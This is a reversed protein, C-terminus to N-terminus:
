AAKAYTMKEQSRSNTVRHRRKSAALKYLRNQLKLMDRRLKAPNLSAYQKRLARKIGESVQKSALIRAYPTQPRDHRKRVKSGERTKELLKMQPLFFNAYLRWISCIRKLLALEKETDYRLYGVTQRVATYNKQEVYCNDNKRGERCRTFTIKERKCYRFLHNNIFESGTDSNIGRLPFPLHERIDKLAEFTWVQAKNRLGRLETWGSAVDTASLSQCFDGRSNGGEHAVLDVQLFGVQADNWDAFTCIPIKHKLLSGPKTGRRGKLELRKRDGALLRDATSASMKLLLRRVDDSVDLEKWKILVSVMEGINSTLRKGCAFDLIGWIKRLPGLVEAGYKKKRGRKGAQRGGAPPRYRSRDSGRLVRAAYCRNYGTLAVFEDSFQRKDKKRARRYRRAVERVLTKRTRMDLGM